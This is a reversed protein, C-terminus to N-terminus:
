IQTINKSEVHKRSIYFFIKNTRIGIKQVLKTIRMKGGIFKNNLINNLINWNEKNGHIIM